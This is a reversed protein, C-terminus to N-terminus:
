TQPQKSFVNHSKKLPHREKLAEKGWLKESLLQRFLYFKKGCIIRKDQLVYVFLLFSKRLIFLWCIRQCLKSEYDLTQQPRTDLVFLCWSYLLLLALSPYIMNKWVFEKLNQIVVGLLKGSWWLHYGDYDFDDNDENNIFQSSRMNMSIKCHCSNKLKPWSWCNFGVCRSWGKVGYIIWSVAPRQVCGVIKKLNKLGRSWNQLCVTERRQSPHLSRHQINRQPMQLAM